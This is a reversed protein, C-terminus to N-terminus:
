KRAYDIFKILTTQTIRNQNDFEGISGFLILFLEAFHNNKLIM